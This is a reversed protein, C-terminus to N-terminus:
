IKGNRYQFAKVNTTVELTKRFDADQIFVRLPVKGDCVTPHESLDMVDSMKMKCLPIGDETAYLPKITLRGPVIIEAPALKEVIAMQEENLLELFFSYIQRDKAEKYSSLGVYAKALCNVCQQRSYPPLAVNKGHRVVLRVRAIWEKVNHNWTPLKEPEDVLNEALVLSIESPKFGETSGSSSELVLDRFKLVKNAEVKRKSEDFFLEQKSEIQEPFVEQLWRLEVSSAMNLLTLGDASGGEIQRIEAAVFYKSKTVVSERALSGTRGGLLICDLTGSDKRMALHDVFGALICKLTLEDNAVGGDLSFGQRHCVDLLQEYTLAILRATQMHIGMKRGAAVDFNKQQAYRFANAVTYFDSKPNTELIERANRVDRDRTRLLLDKGSTLAAFLAIAKVCRFRNAEILMRAYRPHVPLRVMEKGTSTIEGHRDLAGLRELMQEAAVVANKDPKDLLELDAPNKIGLSHLLLVMSSLESRLVEPTLRDPRRQHEEETWLRYCEGPATRGARGARQDASAKSIAELQLVSIQTDPNFRSVRAMGSDIVFRIGDITVSTEAVNTSVIIKRRNSSQFALDQQEPPLDGHLPLLLTEEPFRLSQINKITEQIEFMGPMFVLIDGREGQGVIKEVYQAALEPQSRRDNHDVYQIRVPFSRGESQIKPCDGLYKSISQIDLTASMVICLLDSRPGDQLRKTLALAVDSLLNREHFEDFIVAGVNKLHPDELFLRLLVGETMFRIRTKESIFDEFRIQYGVEDGLKSNREFAVRASVTRAAVRRPQLIVIQKNGVRGSELLMQCVQTTKGSGTPAAVVVRNGKSWADCLQGHLQWIPLNRPSAPTTM